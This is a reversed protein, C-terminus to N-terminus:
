IREWFEQWKDSKSRESTQKGTITYIPANNWGLIGPCIKGSVDYHRVVNEKPIDYKLMLYRVLKLTNDVVSDTVSWGEHNPVLASTGKKLTSCMEISVTNKNTAKGYLRGGGSSTNKADGVSWCYYNRLDPNIQVIQSDDVVYDASARRSIFVSRTNMASGAKSTSGATYHIAIYKIPRNICRTIHTNIYGPTITLTSNDGYEIATWTKPGAIGDPFLGHDNQWAKLAKETAPGFIGDDAIGLARQLIKVEEGKDGKRITKM